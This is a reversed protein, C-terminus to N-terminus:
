GEREPTLSASFPYIRSGVASNRIGLQNEARGDGTGVTSMDLRIQGCGCLVFVDRIYHGM